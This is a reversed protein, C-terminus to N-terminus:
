ERACSLNRSQEDIKRLDIPRPPNDEDSSLLTGAANKFFRITFQVPQGDQTGHFAAAGDLVEYRGGYNAFGTLKEFTGDKRLILPGSDPPGECDRIYHGSLLNRLEVARVPILANGPAPGTGAPSCASVAIAWPALVLHDRTLKM